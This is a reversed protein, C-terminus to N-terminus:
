KENKFESLYHNVTIDWNFKKSYIFAKEGMKKRLEKNKILINVKNKFEKYDRILFGTKKDIIVEPISCVSYSISPKGCAAAELFVLGFGEWKSASVFFSCRQYQKVLEKKSVKGLFSVENSGIKKAYSKLKSEELGSGIIRLPFRVEKSLKILEEVSKHKELRGVYLMYNDDPFEKLPKFDQSVGNPIVKIKIKPVLKSLKNALYRSVTITVRNSLLTKLIIQNFKNRILNDSMPSGHWTVVTPLGIFAPNLSSHHVNFIDFRYKKNLKIIEKRAKIINPFYSLSDKFNNGTLLKKLNIKLFCFNEEPFDSKSSIVFVEHKKGIRRAIEYVVTDAGRGQLFTDNVFAIRM